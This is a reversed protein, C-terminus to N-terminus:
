LDQLPPDTQDHPHAQHGELRGREPVAQCLYHGTPHYVCLRRYVLDPSVGARDSAQDRELKTKRQHPPTLTRLSFSPTQVLTCPLMEDADPTKLTPAFWM